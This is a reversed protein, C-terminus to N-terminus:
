YSKVECGGFMVNGRIYITKDPQSSPQGMLTRSDSYGGLIANVESHVTWDPPIIFSIGGFMISIDIVNKGQSLTSNVLSAEAGGMFCEVKGGELNQATIVREGGGLIATINFYNDSTVQRDTKVSFFSRRKDHSLLLVAGAVILILPWFNHHFNYPLSFIKPLLFFGGVLLLILGSTSNRSKSLNVLGIVILIMPWTLLVDAVRGPLIGTRDFLLLFGAALLLLGFIIGSSKHRVPKDPNQIKNYM